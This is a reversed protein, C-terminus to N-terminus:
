RSEHAQNKMPKGYPISNWDDKVEDIEHLISWISGETAGGLSVVKAGTMVKSIRDPLTKAIWDGSMMVLRVNASIQESTGEVFEVIMEMLAPVSNWITVNHERLLKLWRQPDKSTAPETMVLSGGASLLGFIDYVSLDFSLSSLALVRDQPGVNFRENIDLITNVAGQHDIMVGKPKGTSGSTYIVYALDQNSQLPQLNEDEGSLDNDIVLCKINSPWDFNDDVWKQTLAIEVEGDELLDWVRQQPFEASIPLYAAGAKLIGLVAVVQHWDKNMVIAVLKNPSAGLKRLASALHNARRNLEQYSLQAGASIVAVDNPRLQAQSEFLSHLLADSVPAQTSNVEEFLNAQYDPLLHLHASLWSRDDSALNHLLSVYSSFMDLLLNDPFLDEVADWNFFLSGNAEFVQHDIWVQPTQTINYGLEAQITVQSAEAQKANRSDDMQRGAENRAGSPNKLNLTSTFVVPMAARPSVGQGRALERLVRVGSVYRHDLDDWLREQLRRARSEFCEGQSNDVELLTLSTFDGVIANVQPHMPLRNFLTLNITFRPSNSWTALVEAFAALLVGSPTLGVQTARNKLKQWTERNLRGRHRAFKPQTISGPNKALPLDPAPPLTELRGKWYQESRQYLKSERLAIEAVVYDRFSLDFPEFSTDPNEYLQTFEDTLINYSQADGTLADLSFHLRIRRDDVRTARIEFLPWQDAPRVQHSMKQRVSALETAVLEPSQGRLDLTEFQYYPVQELIQQQGDPLIIARLMDHREILKQWADNLRELDLDLTDLEFYLHAAVNGLELAGSRGIWYAQQIETLPFPEYRAEQSAVIAPLSTFSDADEAQKVKHQAISTALGAITPTQFLTRLPLDALLAERVRNMLQISLISHGGLEFFNDQIGVKELGLVEAWIEALVKEVQTRPAMFAQSLEPRETDPAPLASRDIKKSPTLPLEDMIVFASPVMYDPLQEALSARLESVTLERGRASVVYAVLRRDGVTDERALVVVERVAPNQALVSEIEGLEVRFGRIKVQHDKRGLFEIAGAPMLRSLDGTKYMRAGPEDSFPDPVFREATLDPRNIYGRALSDGGIYLEGVVGVPLWNLDKDTIYIQTNAIPRGISPYTEWSDIAHKMVYSTVVHTESPGYHNHLECENLRKFLEVISNTIQLQEGTTILERLSLLTGDKDKYEEAIQQLVVVPLIIKDISKESIFRGLSVPDMRLDESMLYLTGGSCWTAFVEHFSADFSLSAFQLMRDAKRLSSLHWEILNTLARHSLGIGKPKGTSGSTYIVYLLNEAAVGVALNDDNFKSIVEWDSDLCVQLASTEPLGDVLNKETLLVTAQADELMFALREKPYAPDLPLYAGGAKLVGLVGVLMEISREVFIGVLSDPGIGSARLYHALQNARANLETYTLRVEEFVLATANPSRKVQEEFLQHICSDRSYGAGTANWSSLLHQESETLLPLDSLRREPAAIIAELLSKLHGAMRNITDADFLDTSYEFAAALGHVGQKVFLTLDFKSSEVEVEIPRLKLGTTEINDAAANQHVFMVQFLPTRSLDREPQLVEVLHEFPLDQHAYAGLAVERVRALFEKFTLDGSVDASMVLTNAFFGILPEVEARTRGAIPTGVSIHRQGTYRYLLVQFAALLTMFVTTNTERSISKLSEILNGPLDINKMAGRFTQIAPRPRDAPLDLTFSAAALHQKWYSLERELREGQLWQRQWNAFDAYQVPLEALPSNQRKSFAEYLSATERLFLDISWGDSAIHHMNVLAVHEQESLRLVGVRLLPGTTLDFPAQAEDKARRLVEMEREPEPLESLDIVERIVGRATQADETERTVLQVPNGDVTAFRTRLSEHRRLIECVSNDLATLDLPGDLRFAFFINYFPNDPELQTLFWMRQQAFSLPLGVDRGLKEIASVALRDGARMAMEVSEALGSVTPSEFLKRLPLDVRFAARIRSLVQTALLSHGGLDFFNDQIGVNELGLLHAWIGALLEETPTRPAVFAAAFDPRTFDPAPLARRDVKGNPTLPFQDLTVYSSPVMFDPLHEQLHSRLDSAVPFQESGAIVYAVLRREGSIDNRLTVVSDQIAPHQSLAAEIEGLEIRFGRLKVQQDIRGLFEINGDALYRALDGTKYLRTGPEGGFPNPVFREATLDSRNLYGRALGSGGIHLEGAVGVPVLQTHSDLIYIQTNAIPNGISVPGTLSEVKSATSWITAEVPGYMNWLADSKQLLSDALSAPLAEGGCLVKLKRNGQWGSELLLKWTAPTAQMVTANSSEIRQQLQAGDAAVEASVLVLRAGVTLPLYIELAAIDFSLTTVSLLSDQKTLGPESRMSHLFNTLASHSVEVGKPKGTSGSTYIVYALNDSALRCAPNEDNSAAIHEWDADLCIVRANHEPLQDVIKQETLLLPLNSDELMFALRTKPYTPDLPIYAGGAKLVGLLGVIMDISREVSIGVRVEPGVGLGLLYNALQNARRNLELYTIEKDEFVLAVAKPSLEVQEEFLQHVFQAEHFQKRTRNWEIQLERQEATTLLRLDSVRQEPMEVISELLTRFHGLMRKITTANFLDVNYELSAVLGQGGEVVSMTLDFQSVGADATVPKITVDPFNLDSAPANQLAFMVQVLPHRSLDREPQLEEVLKEFPLDQHAYAGITTQHVQALLARFTQADSFDAHLVLTNAFLGILNELEERNRGAIPTGVLIKNQGAYRYLLTQFAALLTMFLTVNESRSLANIKRTLEDPLRLYERAGRFTQVPPRPRDTPLDLVTSDDSLQRKWYGLQEDIVEGQLWNRQWYAFDAYQIELEALPSSERKSFSQYLTAVERVLVGMSWGDSVIHHLTLLLVHDQDSLELLSGRMPLDNGLDFPQRAELSALRRVAEDKQDGQTERLDIHTISIPLAPAITQVPRGDVESFRARLTEHRRLIESLARELAEVDLSGELRIATPMNFVATGPELKEIFWLRQQAFSLPTIDPQPRRSIKSARESSSKEDMIAKLLQARKEPSLRKLRELRDITKM